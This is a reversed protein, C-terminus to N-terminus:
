AAAARSAPFRELAWTGDLPRKWYPKGDILRYDGTRPDMPLRAEAPYFRNHREILDNVAGFDWAEVVARWHREFRDRDHGCERALEEWAEALRAEHARTEDHIARLRLMYPLPGGLSAIYSAPDARFNRLRRRVEGRPLAGAQRDAEVALEQVRDRVSRKGPGSEALIRERERRDM